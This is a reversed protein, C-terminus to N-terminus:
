DDASTTPANYPFGLLGSGPSEPDFYWYQRIEAIRVGEFAYHESGHVVFDDGAPTTGSMSWEIAAHGDSEVYSDVTWSAGSWHHRVKTYFAGIETAGRVPHHNLDYVVAGDTFCAAIQSATGNSCTAFYDEVLNRHVTM